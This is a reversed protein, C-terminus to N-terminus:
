QKAKLVKTTTKPSPLHKVPQSSSNSAALKKIEVMQGPRMQPEDDAVYFVRIQRTITAEEDRGNARTERRTQPEDDAVYFVRIQRTITAEEDRGNARTERRMM